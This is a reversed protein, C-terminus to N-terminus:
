HREGIASPAISIAAAPRRIPRTLTPAEALTGDGATAGAEAM